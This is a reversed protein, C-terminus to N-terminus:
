LITTLLKCFAESIKTATSRNNIMEKTYQTCYNLQKSYIEKTYKALDNDYIFSNIELNYKFSRIDFNSTGISLYYDDCIFVKSHLFASKDFLYININDDILSAAYAKTAQLLFPHDNKNPLMIKIDVGKSAAYKLAYIMTDNLILYPTQIYIYNKAQYIYELFKNEISNIKEIDAGSSIIEIQKKEIYKQKILYQHINIIKKSCYMYDALFRKEIQSTADGIIKLECDVWVGLKKNRGLYKDGINYGGIYSVLNDIIITKRHYRYNINFFKFSKFPILQGGLELFKKFIKKKMKYSGLTDYLIIIEVGDKLKEELKGIIKKGIKDTNFTLLSIHIFNKATKIEEFINTFLDDGKTFITVDNSFFNTKSNVDPINNEDIIRKKILTKKNNEDFFVILYIIPTLFPFIIIAILLYTMNSLNNNYNFLLKLGFFLNIFYISLLIYLVM